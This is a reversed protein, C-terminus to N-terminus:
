YIPPGAPRGYKQSPLAQPVFYLMQSGAVSSGFPLNMDNTGPTLTDFRSFYENLLHM